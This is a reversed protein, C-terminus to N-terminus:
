YAAVLSEICSFAELDEHYGFITNSYAGRDVKLWPIVYRHRESVKSGSIAYCLYDSIGAFFQGSPMHEVWCM